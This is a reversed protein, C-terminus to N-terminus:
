IAIPPRLVPPQSRSAFSLPGILPRLSGSAQPMDRGGIGVTASLGCCMSLACNAHQTAQDVPHCCEHPSVIESAQVEVTSSAAAQHAHAASAAALGVLVFLLFAWTLKAFAKPLFRNTRIRASM